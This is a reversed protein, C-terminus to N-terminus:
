EYKAIGRRGTKAMEQLKRRNDISTLLFNQYYSNNIYSNNAIFYPYDFYIKEYIYMLRKSTLNHNSFRDQRTQPCTKNILTVLGLPNFGAKVLYEVARKDSVVEYKKPALKVQMASVFGGFAGDYSKRSVSIQRALLAAIEDNTSAFQLDKEFIVIQRKTVEPMGKILKNKPDYYFTIRKDIKNSNLLATGIENLKDQICVTKSFSPDINELEQAFSPAIFCFLAALLLFYRYFM